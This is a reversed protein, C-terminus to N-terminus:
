PLPPSQPSPAPPAILPSHRVELQALNRQRLAFTLTVPRLLSPTHAIETWGPPSPRTRHYNTQGQALSVIAVLFLFASWHILSRM